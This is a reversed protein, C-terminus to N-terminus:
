DNILSFIAQVINHTACLFVRRKWNFACINQQTKKERERSTRKNSFAFLEKKKEIIEDIESDYEVNIIWNFYLVCYNNAVTNRRNSYKSRVFISCKVLFFVCLAAQQLRNWDRLLMVSVNKEVNLSFSDGAAPEFWFMGATGLRVVAFCIADASM